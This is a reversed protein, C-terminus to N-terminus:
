EATLSPQSPLVGPIKFESFQFCSKIHLTSPYVVCAPCTDTTVGHELDIFQALWLDFSLHVSRTCVNGEDKNESHTPMGKCQM